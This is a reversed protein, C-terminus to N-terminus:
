LDKWVNTDEWFATDDWVGSDLIWNSEVTTGDDYGFYFLEGTSNNRYGKFNVLFVREQDFNYVFSMEGSPAAIPIVFDDESPLGEASIPRLILKRASSRLSVGTATDVEIKAKGAGVTLTASPIVLALKQLDSEAMPVKVQVARGQIVNDIPTNGFQDVTMEKNSTAISVTVGGKTYGLNDVGWLVHCAGIKVNDISSTPAPM